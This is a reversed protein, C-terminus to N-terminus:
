ESFASCHMMDCFHLREFGAVHREAVDATFNHMTTQPKRAVVEGVRELMLKKFDIRPYQDIVQDITKSDILDAPIAGVDIGAGFQVLAIEPRKRQPIGLTSHLAIADWVIEIKEEPYGSQRLFEAAGDAGDIEFREDRVYEEVLGLDHLVAGLFLMEMDIKQTAAQDFYRYWGSAEVQSEFTRAFAADPMTYVCFFDYHARRDTNLDNFGFGIVNIGATEMEAVASEVVAVFERRDDESLDLWPQNYNYLEIYVQTANTTM